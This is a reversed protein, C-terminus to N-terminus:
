ARCGSSRTVSDPVVLCLKSESQQLYELVEWRSEPLNGKGEEQGLEVLELVGAIKAAKQGRGTKRCAKQGPPEFSDFARLATPGILTNSAVSRQLGLTAACSRQRTLSLKARGGAGWLL